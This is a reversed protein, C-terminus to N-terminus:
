PVACIFVNQPLQETVATELDMSLLNAAASVQTHVCTYNEVELQARHLFM